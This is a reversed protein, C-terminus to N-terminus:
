LGDVSQPSEASTSAGDISMEDLSVELELTDILEAVQLLCQILFNPESDRTMGTSSHANSGVQKESIQEM